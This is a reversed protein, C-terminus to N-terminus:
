SVVLPPRSFKARLRNISRLLFPRRLMKVLFSRKGPFDLLLIGALIILLGPGPMGPLSLIAGLVVLMAGLLNKLVFGTWFVVGREGNRVSQARGAAFYDPSLRILVTLSIAFSILVIAALLLGALLLYRGTVATQELIESIWSVM